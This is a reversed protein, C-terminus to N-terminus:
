TKKFFSIRPAVIQILANRVDEDLSVESFIKNLDSADEPLFDAIKILYESKMKHIELKQLEQKMKKVDASDLKTFRSLYQILEEKDLKQLIEKTESMTLPQTELIM